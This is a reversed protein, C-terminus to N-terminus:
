RRAALRSFRLSLWSSGSLAGAFTSHDLPVNISRKRQRIRQGGLSPKEVKQAPGSRSSFSRRTLSFFLATSRVEHV